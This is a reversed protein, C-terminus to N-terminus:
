LDARVVEGLASESNCKARVQVWQLGAIQDLLGYNGSSHHATDESALLDSAMFGLGGLRYKISVFVVPEGGDSASRKALITSNVVTDDPVQTTFGGGHIWVFVPALSNQAKNM